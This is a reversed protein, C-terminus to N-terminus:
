PKVWILANWASQRMTKERWVSPALSHGYLCNDADDRDADREDQERGNQIPRLQLGAAEAMLIKGYPTTIHHRRPRTRDPMARDAAHGHQGAFGARVARIEIGEIAQSARRDDFQRETPCVGPGLPRGVCLLTPM